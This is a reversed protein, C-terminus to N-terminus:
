LSVLGKMCAGGEHGLRRAFVEAELVTVNPTLIETRIQPSVCEDM